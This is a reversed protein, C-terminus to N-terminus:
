MGEQMMSQPQPVQPEQMQPAPSNQNLMAQQSEIAADVTGAAVDFVQEPTLGGQMVQIRKTVADMEKIDLERNKLQLEGKKIEIEQAEFSQPVRELMGMAQQLQQSLQEIQQMAQQLQPNDDGDDLLKPDITKRLRKAFESAGPWDLNEAFIDGAVGMLEPSVQLINAMEEKAEQRKTVYGPGTVPVVSYKGVNPNYIREIAGNIGQRETVAQPQTPDLKVMKTTKGDEGLIQAVRGPTDYIKPILDVLQKTMYRIARALNTVYHYTAKDGEHQRALIAKGSRENSQMGLSANYIGTTAKIDESAAQKAAIIGQQVMPPQVRQPPPLMQGTAEDAVPNYQLYPHNKTNATRWDDEFGEFQGAAGIFPAKPALALMEVEASSQYNYIRQADKSNRVIGSRYVRGEIEFVNGSVLIIPIYKGAWEREELVEFGNTKVWMVKKRHSQRERIPAGYTALLTQYEPDKEFCTEGGPWLHLTDPTVEYYFYEAIRITDKKVWDALGSNGTGLDVLTSALTAKPYKLEYEKHSLDEIIMAWEADEGCPKTIMPDMYVAFSNRIPEILIKQDFSDESEYETLLRFYGEGFTVQNECATDFAIDADSDSQIHRIIGNFVEAVEVSAEGSAPIVKGQPRNQQQDNTVQKIHQPMKNITLTPRAGGVTDSATRSALIGTPWQWEPNDPSAAAFKLDELENNRSESTAAIAADLRDRVLSLLETRDKKSRKKPTEPGNELDDM